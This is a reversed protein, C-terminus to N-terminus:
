LEVNDQMNCGIRNTTTHEITYPHQKGLMEKSFFAALPSKDDDGSNDGNTKSEIVIQDGIQLGDIGTHADLGIGFRSFDYIHASRILPTGLGLTTFTVDIRTPCIKRTFKRYKETKSDYPEHEFPKRNTHIAGYVHRLWTAREDFIKKLLSEKNFQRPLIHFLDEDSTSWLKKYHDVLVRIPSGENVDEFRLVPMLDGITEMDPETFQEEVKRKDGLFRTRLDQPLTGFTYPQFYAEDDVIVMWCLPTHAYFKVCGLLVKSGRLRECIYEFKSCLRRTFYLTKDVSDTSSQEYHRLMRGVTEPDSELFTRFVATSRFADLMMIRVDVDEARREELDKILSDVDIIVNLGVGLLWIRKTAKPIAHRIDIRAAYRSRYVKTIGCEIVSDLLLNQERRLKDLTTRNMEIVDKWLLYHDLLHVLLAVLLILFIHDLSEFVSFQGHVITLLIKAAIVIALAAITLIHRPFFKLFDSANKPLM